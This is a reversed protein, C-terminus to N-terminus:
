GFKKEFSKMFDILCDVAEESVANYISARMGGLVKHGKLQRIGEKEAESLFIDNLACDKLRFPLNIISRYPKKVNNEYLASEDLVQYLKSSKIQSRRAMEKIGGQKKLWQFTKGAVYLSFTPPTNPMSSHATINRYNLLSPCFDIAQDLLDERVIVLTLGAPAINKQVGAFIVGFQNVDCEEQLLASTMDAVLPVNKTDPVGPFRIGHVTENPTYFVYASDDSLCWEQKDPIDVFANVASSTVINVDCYRQAEKIAKNSWHGTHFYDARANKGALNLPVAAFQLTAGGSVFLVKYHEPINMLDRLDLEAQEVLEVFDPSRHSAEVVSYGHGRWNLLEKQVSKLVELPLAAPGASFNYARKLM